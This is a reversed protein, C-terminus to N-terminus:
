TVPVLKGMVIFREKGSATCTSLTLVKDSSTVSVESQFLSRGQMASLWTTYAGSDKFTLAWPSTDGGAEGPTAVFASFLEAVYGGEPTILLMSPHADYYDQEAYSLLSALMSGDRMNHGYIVTNRDAFGPANEYDIFLCGAKNKTGDYLRKLYYDNDEGQAVPYNIATDPLALWAAVDPGKEKLATFDVEPLIVAPASPELSAEPAESQEPAESEGAPAEGGQAPPAEPVALHEALGDYVEASERYQGIEQALMYASGVILAVCMLLAVSAAKRRKPNSKRHKGPRLYLVACVGCGIVALGLLGVWLYLSNDDGTQPVPKNPTTPTSPNQPTTPTTPKDPTEEGPKENFFQVLVTEGTKVEFTAPDPLIYNESAKNRVETVTYKGIRLDEVTIIGSKGSTFTECYAGDASKVEFAFGDKRGDSSDKMIKLDGRRAENVFGRGAENEIVVTQGDETIEFYYAKKDLEYGKPAKKEKVFYGQALLGDWQHLGGDTEELKGLLKDDSDLKKNGNTDEYLQFVAGPLRRLFPNSKKGSSPEVVETKIVQVSGRILTNDVQLGISQGDAGIYVHHQEPSITYLAPASIEAVIWHGFPIGEFRFAGGKGTTTTLLASKRTFHETDPPFLGMLAGALKLPDGGEPNEGYKLGDIKGRILENPIAEGGNAHLSVTATDQGAYEFVAPYKQDNLVYANNTAREQVYFGGFPLDSAFSAAYGGGQAPAVSVVELLGGAPIASGDLATLADAAYLGFSIDKYEEGQGMQFVEDAELSKTLDIKVKQRQDYLGTATQTIEVEQGAYALEVHVPEADMVMGAPAQKEELRYRGLYLLSSIATGNEGTTLTEVVTDKAARVTGDGTTIDEDAILDYVAGPLGMVKYVPQYLGGNEQVSYFVEGTKAITIQGKQPMNHQVVTVVAEAGDITFPVPEGCLVYGSPAQVEYLEFDGMPLPEPLMLWGEDSVYFTDLTEPNPYYIQQTVFEGTSLDKIRFGTGPMPIIEGTEADRKEIKLRASITDNNLIYSYTYGNTSIFVTFDPVFAKGEEGEVQHVTYRGYPLPKSAAFGDGDTTLLDRESEKANEYSGASKLFIEFVAGAEPKEIQGANADESRPAAEAQEEDSVDPDPDDTHKVLQINGYIVKETVHNETTNLEVEYLRPSAGVEHVAEDLLYGTSPSIERITWDDGCVYYGTLFGGDPGTTFTDVLEGGKYLGYQAGALSANGQATGTDADSKQLKVRFKKLINSFHVTSTQGSEITIYQAAPTVYRDIPQETVLYTGPLLDLEVRGDAGTTVTQDVGSGTIRFSFGEVVGDESTKVIGGRGYTETQVRVFFAVPDKAGTMMTQYGPRGWILMNEGVPVNKRYQLTVPSEIMNKSTFTYRNGDRTVTVGSGALTQLDINLNNTDTITLRYVKAEPDWELEQVPAGGKDASAFSPVTSHSATQELIWDYAREAPRGKVVSYFQDGDVPGNDHRSYPDSRLQQQYEWVICQAAMYWDNENLGSLPLSAGPQWGYLTTLMIGRQSAAPLQNFYQSNQGQSSLYGDDADGFRIGSEVCYVWRSAGASDTLVYHKYANGGSHNVYETTGDSHYSMSAYGSPSRYPQGDSGTVVDGYSSSARQGESAAFASVPLMGALLLVSLFVALLKHFGHGGSITKNM